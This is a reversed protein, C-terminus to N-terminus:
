HQGRRHMAFGRQCHDSKTIVLIGSPNIKQFLLTGDNTCKARLGFARGRGNRRDKMGGAACRAESGPRKASTPKGTGPDVNLGKPHTGNEKRRILPQDAPNRTTTSITSALAGKVACGGENAPGTPHGDRIKIQRGKVKLKVGSLRCRLRCSTQRAESDFDASDGFRVADTGDSGDARSRTPCPRCVWEAANGGCSPRPGDPPWKDFVLYSDQGRRAM